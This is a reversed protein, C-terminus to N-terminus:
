RRKVFALRYYRYSDQDYRGNNQPHCEHEETATSLFLFAVLISWGPRGTPLGALLTCACSLPVLLSCTHRSIILPCLLSAAAPAILLLLAPARLIGSLLLAPARLIGGLRLLLAPAVLLLLTPARLIGSLLLTPARLIGSLLLAPAVLLL